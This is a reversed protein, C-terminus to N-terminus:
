LKTNIGLIKNRYKYTVRKPLIRVLRLGVKSNFVLSNVMLLKYGVSEKFNSKGLILNQIEPVSVKMGKYAAIRSAYNEIKYNVSHRQTESCQESSLEQDFVILGERVMGDLIDKSKCNRSIAMARKGKDLGWPDGVTIDAKDNFLDNCFLCGKPIFIYDTNQYFEMCPVKKKTGDKLTVVTDGPPMGYRYIIKEITNEDKIKLSDKLTVTTGHKGRGISCILGLKLVFSARLNPKSKLFLDLGRIHCPLGVMAVRDEINIQDLVENVSASQYVSGSVEKLMDINEIIYVKSSTPDEISMGTVIAKNIKKKDFLYKITETVIGGSATFDMREKDLTNYIGIFDERSPLHEDNYDINNIPCCKLCLGCDICKDNDVSPFVLGRSHLMEMKIASTPCISKCTGCQYCLDKKILSAVNLKAM